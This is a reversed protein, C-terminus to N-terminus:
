GQTRSAIASRRALRRLVIDHRRADLRLRSMLAAAALLLGGPVIMVAWVPGIPMGAVVPGDLPRNLDFGWAALTLLALSSGLGFCVKYLLTGLAFFSAPRSPSRPCTRHM